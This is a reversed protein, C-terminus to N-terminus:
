GSPYCTIEIAIGKLTLEKLWQPAIFVSCNATDFMVAIDLTIKLDPPLSSNDLQLKPIQSMVNKLHEDLHANCDLNSEYRWVTKEWVRQGLRPTSHRPSGLDHSVSNPELGLKNSLDGLAMSSTTANLSVIYEKM